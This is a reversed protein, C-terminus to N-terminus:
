IGTALYLGVLLHDVRGVEPGLPLILKSARIRKQQVSRARNVVIPRLDSIAQNYEARVVAQVDPTLSSTRRGTLDRNFYDAIVTGYVRYLYDAGGNEVEILMLNGLWPWLDIVDLETRAPLPRSGRKREWLDHLTRLKPHIEGATRVPMAVGEADDMKDAGRAGAAGSM